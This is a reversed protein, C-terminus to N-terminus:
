KQLSQASLGLLKCTKFDKNSMQMAGNPGLVRIIVPIEHERGQHEVEIHKIGLTDNLKDYAPKVLTNFAQIM